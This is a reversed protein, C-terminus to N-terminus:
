RITGSMSRLCCSSAISSTRVRNGRTRQTLFDLGNSTTSLWVGATTGSSGNISFATLRTSKQPVGLFIMFSWVACVHMLRIGACYLDNKGHAGIQCIDFSVLNQQQGMCFAQLSVVKRAIRVTKYHSWFVCFFCRCCSDESPSVFLAFTHQMITQKKETQHYSGHHIFLLTTSTECGLEKAIQALRLCFCLLLTPVHSRISGRYLETHRWVALFSCFNSYWSSFLDSETVRAECSQWSQNQLTQSSHLQVNVWVDIWCM